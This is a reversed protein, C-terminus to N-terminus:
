CFFSRAHCIRFVPTYEDDSYRVIFGSFLREYSNMRQTLPLALVAIKPFCFSSRNSRVFILCSVKATLQLPM